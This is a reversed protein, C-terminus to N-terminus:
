PTKQFIVPDFLILNWLSYYLELGNPACGVNLCVLVAVFRIWKARPRKPVRCPDCGKFCECWIHFHLWCIQKKLWPCHVYNSVVSWIIWSRVVSVLPLLIRKLFCVVRWMTLVERIECQQNCLQQFKSLKNTAARTSVIVVMYLCMLLEVMLELGNPAYLPLEINNPIRVFDWM